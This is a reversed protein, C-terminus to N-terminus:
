PQPEACPFISLLVVDAAQVPNTMSDLGKRTGLAISSGLREM